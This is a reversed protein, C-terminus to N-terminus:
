VRGAARLTEVIREISFQQAYLAQARRGLAARAAPDDLLADVTAGFEGPSGDGALAVAHSSAWFPETLHGRNTVVPVGIALGAMGSGRRSSMGDPYPQVMLDCAALHDAVGQASLGEAAHLRVGLNPHRRAVAECHTVSGRGVLLLQRDGVAGLVNPLIADLKQTILGGFTGFHGVLMGGGDGVYRARIIAAAADDAATAVNSPVPLWTVPGIKADILHLLDGWAPISVFIRAASRALIQAMLRNARGLVHHRLPQGPDLPYAVEHFMVWVPIRRSQGAVWLCFPLNMAKCGFAPPSYQVLLPGEGARDRRVSAALGALTRPGFRDPLLHVTAAGRQPEKGAGVGDAVGPRPAWVHVDDGAAALHSAVSRTYDSVGGAQPPYEGTLITWRV